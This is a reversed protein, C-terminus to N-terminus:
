TELLLLWKMQPIGFSIVLHFVDDGFSEKEENPKGSHPAYITFVNLLCDGLVMKLVMVSDSHREVSVVSDVSKEAVFIGVGDTKAKSGMWFLQYRKGIAGFFRCGCGRWRTEQVCAVDMRRDALAEVLEGSRGTLSDVNWTGVRFHWGKRVEEDHVCGEAKTYPQAANLSPKAVEQKRLCTSAGVPHYGFDINNYAMM